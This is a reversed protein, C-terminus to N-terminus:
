FSTEAGQDQPKPRGQSLQAVYDRWFAQEEASLSRTLQMWVRPRNRLYNLIIGNGLLNIHFTNGSITTKPAYSVFSIRWGTQHQRFWLLIPNIEPSENPFSRVLVGRERVAIEGGELYVFQPRTGEHVWMGVAASILIVAVILLRLKV